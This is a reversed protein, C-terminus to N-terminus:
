MSLVEDTTSLPLPYDYKETALGNEDAQLNVPLM